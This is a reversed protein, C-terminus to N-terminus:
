YQCTYTSYDCYGQHGQCVCDPDDSCDSQVPCHWGGGGGGGFYYQCLNNICAVSSAGWCYCDSASLCDAMVCRPSPTQNELGLVQVLSSCSLPASVGPRASEAATSISAFFPLFLLVAVVPKRM